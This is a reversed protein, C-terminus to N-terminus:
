DSDARRIAFTGSARAIREEGNWVYCSSFGITRGVRQVDVRAEIWDGPRAIGAYDISLSVTVLKLPPDRSLAIGTALAIDVLTAILGGHAAGALNEHKEEIAIGCAVGQADRRLYFPGILERYASTRELPVFGPPPEAM